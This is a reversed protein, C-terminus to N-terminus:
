QQWQRQFDPGRSDPPQAPKTMQVPLSIPFGVGILVAQGDGLEPIFTMASRDADSSAREVLDRDKDNRLRHIILSGMQSLIGEPIDRPRQTSICINLSSKRGEKAILEFSDLRYKTDEEGLTKNLFNHAEDLFVLLPSERFKGSRAMELLHRGLANAVIERADHSFPLHKLSIRLVRAAPDTMFSDLEDFVVRKDGPHFMCALEPAQLMDEIRTILTVCNSRELENPGGWHREDPSSSFGGSSYVCEADIQAPLKTIDFNARPDEIESARSIYAAEFPAKLRGAKLVVGRTALQPVKALKLSKIAARLKPAQTPGAPKFLAFLDSETLAYYPMVLEDSSEQGTSDNGIYFHRVADSKMPEFEGTADFLVVKARHRTAEEILRAFTWSKGAGTTGLVACHRGFLLEPTLRIETGDALSGVNLMIPEVAAERIQSSEFLWRLLEPPVSYVASGPHPLRTLGRNVGAGDPTMTTLLEIVGTSPAEFEPSSEPPHTVSTIRAFLLFEGCEMVVFRGVEASEAATDSLTMRASVQGVECITGMLCNPDFPDVPLTKIM